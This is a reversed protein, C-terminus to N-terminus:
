QMRKIASSLSVEFREAANRRLPGILIHSRLM